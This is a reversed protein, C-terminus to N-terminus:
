EGISKKNLLVDELMELNVKKIGDEEVVVEESTETEEETQEVM